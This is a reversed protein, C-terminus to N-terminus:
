LSAREGANSPAPRAQYHRRDTSHPGRSGSSVVDRLRLDMKEGNLNM